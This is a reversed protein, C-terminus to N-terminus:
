NYFLLFFCSRRQIWQRKTRTLISVAFVFSIMVVMTKNGNASSVYYCWCCWRDIQPPPLSVARVKGGMCFMWVQQGPLYFTLLLQRSIGLVHPPPLDRSSRNCYYIFICEPNLRAIRDEWTSKRDEHRTDLNPINKGEKSYISETTPPKHPLPCSFSTKHMWATPYLLTIQM